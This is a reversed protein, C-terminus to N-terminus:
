YDRIGPQRALEPKLHYFTAETDRMLEPLPICRGSLSMVLPWIKEPEGFYNCTGVMLVDINREGTAESPTYSVTLVTPTCAQHQFYGVNDM